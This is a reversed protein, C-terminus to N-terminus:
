EYNKLGEHIIRLAEKAIIEYAKGEERKNYNNCFDQADQINGNLIFDELIRLKWNNWNQMSPHPLEILNTLKNSPKGVFSSKKM